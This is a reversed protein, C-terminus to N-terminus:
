TACWAPGGITIVAGVTVAARTVDNSRQDCAHGTRLPAGTRGPVDDDLTTTDVLPLQRSAAGPYPPSSASASAPRRASDGTDWTFALVGLRPVRSVSADFSHFRVLPRKPVM